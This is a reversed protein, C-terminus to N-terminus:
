HQPTNLGLSSRRVVLGPLRVSGPGATSRSPLEDKPQELAAVMGQVQVQTSRVRLLKLEQQVRTHKPQPEKEEFSETEKLLAPQPEMEKNLPKDPIKKKFNIKKPPTIKNLPQKTVPELQQEPAEKNIATASIEPSGKDKSPRQSLSRMM